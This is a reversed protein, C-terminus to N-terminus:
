KVPTKGNKNQPKGKYILKYIYQDYFSFNRYGALYGLGCALYPILYIMVYSYWTIINGDLKMFSNFPFTYIVFVFQDALYIYNPLGGYKALDLFSPIYALQWLIVLLTTFAVPILGIVFGRAPFHSVDYYPKVDHRAVRAAATYVFGFVVLIFFSCFITMLVQNNIFSFFAVLFLIVASAVAMLYTGVLKMGDLFYRKSASVTKENQKTQGNELFIGGMCGTQNSELRIQEADASQFGFASVQKGAAQGAADCPM